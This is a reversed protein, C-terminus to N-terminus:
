GDEQGGEIEEVKLFDFSDEIYSGEHQCDVDEIQEKADEESEADVTAELAIRWLVRYKKV